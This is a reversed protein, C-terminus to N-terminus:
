GSGVWGGGGGGSSDFSGVGPALGEAHAGASGGLVAAGEAVSFAVRRARLIAMPVATAAVATMAPPIAALAIVVTSTSSVAEVLVVTPFSELVLAAVLSVLTLASAPM